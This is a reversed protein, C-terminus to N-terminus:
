FEKMHEHYVRVTGCIGTQRDHTQESHTEVTVFGLKDRWQRDFKKLVDWFAKYDYHVAEVYEQIRSYGRCKRVVMNKGM